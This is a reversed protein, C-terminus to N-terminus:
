EHSGEKVVHKFIEDITPLVEHFGILENSAALGSLLESVSVDGEPQILYESVGNETETQRVVMKSAESSLSGKVQIRFRNKKHKEKLDKKEGELVKHAKNILVIRDCLEEVSEMRHTSLLITVGRDRLELILDRVLGANLPDFGSFPEDLILMRPEHMVTAIFQIKQQMGKSLDIVKHGWWEGLGMKRVWSKAKESADSKSLGKLRSLYILEEGVKMKKYLGREEPLYGFEASHRQTLPVGDFLIEGGDRDIIQTLIRILTSKGAGNPGLLGMIGGAPIDLSFDKLALTEGYNKSVGQISILAM